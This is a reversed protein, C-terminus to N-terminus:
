SGARVSARAAARLGRRPSRNRASGSTRQHPSDSMCLDKSRRQPRDSLRRPLMRFESTLAFGTRKIRPFRPAAARADNSRRSSTSTPHARVLPARGAHAYHCSEDQRLRVLWPGYSCVAIAAIWLTLRTLEM